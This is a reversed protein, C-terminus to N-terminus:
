FVSCYNLTLEGSCYQSSQFLKFFYQVPKIRKDFDRRQFPVVESKQCIAKKIHERIIFRALKKDRTKRTNRPIENNDSDLTYLQFHWYNKCTPYHSFSLVYHENEFYISQKYLKKAQLFLPYFVGSKRIGIHKENYYGYLFVSWDFVDASSMKSPIIKRLFDDAKLNNQLYLNDETERVFSCDKVEEGNLIPYNKHLRIARPPLIM